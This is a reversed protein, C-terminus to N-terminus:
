EITRHILVHGSWHTISPIDQTPLWQLPHHSKHRFLFPKWRMGDGRIDHRQFPPTETLFKVKYYFILLLSNRCMAVRCKCQNGIRFAFSGVAEWRFSDTQDPYRDTTSSNDAGKDTAYGRHSDLLQGATSISWWAPGAACLPGHWSRQQYALSLQTEAQSAQCQHSCCLKEETSHDLEQLLCCPHGVSSHKLWIPGWNGSKMRCTKSSLRWDSTKNLLFGVVLLAKLFRYTKLSM